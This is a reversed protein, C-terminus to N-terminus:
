MLSMVLPRSSTLLSLPHTMIVPLDWDRVAVDLVILMLKVSWAGGEKLLARPSSPFRSVFCMGGASFGQLQFPDRFSATVRRCV